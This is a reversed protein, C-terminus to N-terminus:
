FSLNGSSRGEMGANLYERCSNLTQILGEELGVRAQWRLERQVKSCEFYIKHKPSRHILCRTGVRNPCAIQEVVLPALKKSRFRYSLIAGDTRDM